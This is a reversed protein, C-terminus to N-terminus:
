YFFESHLYKYTFTIGYTRTPPVYGFTSLSAPEINRFKFYIWIRTQQTPLKKCYKNKPKAFHGSKPPDSLHGTIKKPKGNKTVCM